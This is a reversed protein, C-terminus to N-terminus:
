MKMFMSPQIVEEEKPEADDADAEESSGMASDSKSSGDDDANEPLGASLEGADGSSPAGRAEGSSGCSVSYCAFQAMADTTACAVSYCQSAPPAAATGSGIPKAVAAAMAPLLEGNATATAADSAADAEAAEAEEDDEGAEAAPASKSAAPERKRKRPTSKAKGKSKPEPPRTESAAAKGRGKAVAPTTAPTLTRPPTPVAGPAPSTTDDAEDDDDDDDDDDAAPAAAFASSDATDPETPSMAAEEVKISVDHLKVQSNAADEVEMDDEDREAVSGTEGKLQQLGQIQTTMTTEGKRHVEAV